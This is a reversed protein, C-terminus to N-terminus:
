AHDGVQLELEAARTATASAVVNRADQASQSFELSNQSGSPKAGWAVVRPSLTAVRHLRARHAYCTLLTPLNYLCCDEVSLGASVLM